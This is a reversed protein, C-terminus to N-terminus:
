RLAASAVLFDMPWGNSVGGYWVVQPAIFRHSKGSPVILTGFDFIGSSHMKNVLPLKLALRLGM